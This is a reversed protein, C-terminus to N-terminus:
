RSSYGSAPKQGYEGQEGILDTTERQAARRDKWGGQMKQALERWKSVPVGRGFGDRLADRVGSAWSNLKRNRNGRLSDIFASSEGENKKREDGRNKLDAERDEDDRQPSRTADPHKRDAHDRIARIANRKVEELSGGSDDGGFQSAVGQLLDKSMGDLSPFNAGVNDITQGALEKSIQSFDEEIMKIDPHSSRRRDTPASKSKGADKSPSSKSKGGSESRSKAKSKGGSKEKKAKSKGGSKGKNVKDAIGAPGKTIEGNEIYVPSGGGGEGNAPMTVWRGMRVDDAMRRAMRYITASYPHDRVLDLVERASPNLPSYPGAKALHYAAAATARAVGRLSLRSMQSSGESSGSSQQNKKYAAPLHKSYAELVLDPDISGKVDEWSDRFGEAEEALASLVGHVRNPGHDNSWGDEDGYGKERLAASFAKKYLAGTVVPEEKDYEKLEEKLLEQLDGGEEDKRERAYQYAAAYDEKAYGIRDSAYMEAIEGARDMVEAYEDVGGEIEDNLDDRIEEFDEGGVGVAERAAKSWPTSDYAKSSSDFSMIADKAFQRMEDVLYKKDVEREYHFEEGMADDEMAFVDGSDMLATVDSEDVELPDELYGFVGFVNDIGEHIKEAAEEGVLGSYDGEQAAKYDKEYDDLLSQRADELTEAEDRYSENADYVNYVYRGDENEYKIYGGGFGKDHIKTGFRMDPKKSLSSEHDTNVFDEYADQVASAVDHPEFENDESDPDYDDLDEIEAEVRAEFEEFAGDFDTLFDEDTRYTEKLKRKLDKADAKAAKVLDKAYKRVGAEDEPLEEDNIDRSSPYLNDDFYLEAPDKPFEGESSDPADEVEPTSPIEPSFSEESSSGGEDPGSTFRGDGARPHDEERFDSMRRRRAHSVAMESEEDPKDENDYKPLGDDTMGDWEKTLQDVVLKAIEVMARHDLDPNGGLEVSQDQRPDKGLLKRAQLYTESMAAFPAMGAITSGPVVALPTALGVVHGLAFIAIAQKRGYRKELKGFIEKSKAKIAKGAGGLKEWIGSSKEKAELAMKDAQAVASNVDVRHATDTSPDPKTSKDPCDAGYSVEGTDTNRCGKGGRKGEYPVNDLRHRKGCGMRRSMRDSKSKKKRNLHDHVEVKSVYEGLKEMQSIETEVAGDVIITAGSFANHGDEEKWIVGEDEKGEHWIEGGGSEMIADDIARNLGDFGSGPEYNEIATECVQRYQELSKRLDGSAEGLSDRIKGMDPVLDEPASELASEVWPNKERFKAFKKEVRDVYKELHAMQKAHMKDVDLRKIGTPRYEDSKDGFKMHDVIDEDISMSDPFDVYPFHDAFTSLKAVEGDIKEIQRGSLTPELEEWSVEPEGSDTDPEDLDDDKWEFM